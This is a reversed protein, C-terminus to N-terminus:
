EFEDICWEAMCEQGNITCTLRVTDYKSSVDSGMIIRNTTDNALASFSSCRAASARTEVFDKAEEYIQDAQQKEQQFVQYEVAGDRQTSTTYGSSSSSIYGRNTTNSRGATSSAAGAVGVAGAAGGANNGALAAGIAAAVSSSATNTKTNGYYTTGMYEGSSSNSSHTAARRATQRASSYADNATKSGSARYLEIVSEETLAMNESVKGKNVFEVRIDSISCPLPRDTNNLVLLSFQKVHYTRERRKTDSAVQKKKELYVKVDKDVVYENNFLTASVGFTGDSAVLEKYTYKNIDLGQRTTCPGAPLDKHYSEESTVAGNQGYFKCEGNRLGAEFHVVAAIAGNPYFSYYPGELKDDKFAGQASLAGNDDYDYQIGTFRGQHLEGDFTLKGAESYVVYKGEMEGDKFELIAQPTGNEFFCEFIGNRKDNTLEGREQVKGNEYYLIAQGNRVGDKLNYEAQKNGNEYYLEYLGDYEGNVYNGSSKVKGNEYYETYEGTFVSENADLPDIRDFAGEYILKGTLWNFCRFRKPYAPNEPVMTIIGYTAFSGIEVGKWNKDYYLTDIQTQSKAVAMSMLLALGAILTKKMM